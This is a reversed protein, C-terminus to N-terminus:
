LNRVLKRLGPLNRRSVELPTTVGSLQAFIRGDTSRTLGSLRARAILCNRHIRVFREDFETELSKLAEEVLVEGGAHHVVVYKDEALLYQIDAVPILVLNGRVRACLHSRRPPAGSAAQVLALRPAGFRRARELAAQLRERRIPKVLYDVAHAEFAALAHEDYATCFIVAPPTDFDAIHRAAELGDMLPMRIDLLMLEPALRAAAEVAERGNGAEGVIEVNGCEGLLARLRERALPEDDVILVKM